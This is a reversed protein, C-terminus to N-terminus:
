KINSFVAFLFKSSFPNKTADTWRKNQLSYFSTQLTQTLLGFDSLCNTASRFNLQWYEKKKLVMTSQLANCLRTELRHKSM